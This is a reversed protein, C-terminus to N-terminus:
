APVGTTVDAGRRPLSFHFTAGQDVAGEAWVRGGHKDVIRKVIALGIGTGAFADADHLRQFVGFLKHSYAPDFGAGNDRITYTISDDSAAGSVEIVAQERKSTFKIANSLLNVLVQRLMAKDANAPPLGAVRVDIKREGAAPILEALVDQVLTTMDISALVIDKRGARSFALIDDILRGMKDTNRRVTQLLRQGEADLKDKYDELLMNSFSDIARLPARLDHSVSYSFGELDKNASELQATRESVRQELSANLDLIVQESKKLESIDRAAAFVGVVAGTEDRFVSANYLVPTIRGDNARIQLPYDRVEGDRFVRQYGERAKGPDTFYNSFDSGIMQARGIGAVKATAENVDTIKGDASITVLPDVSAELLSRAYRSARLLALQSQEREKRARLVSLGFGLDATMEELLGVEAENFADSERAYATLAGIVHDDVKLPLAISSAFGQKIAAERWPATAPNTLFDRNIQTTGTRIATGTPGRGYADNAWTIKLHEVYGDGFQAVPRVTKGANDEAMGIWVTRYGGIEGAIQCVRALLQEESEARIMSANSAGLVRLVRNTRTLADQAHRADTIDVVSTLYYQPKGQADRRLATSIEAWVISGNKHLYRKTFRVSPAGAALSDLARQNPEIDDPHTIDQWRQHVFEERSYGLMRCFADNVQLTGDTRTISKGIVSHEFVYRFQDESAALAHEASLRERHANNAAVATWWVVGSLLLMLLVASLASGFASDYHGAAQVKLQLWAIAAPAVLAFPMMHRMMAGGALGSSLPRTLGHDPTCFFLGASLVLFAALTHIAVGSYTGLMYLSSVNLMFGACGMYTDVFVLLALCQAATRRGAGEGNVLLLALGALLFNVATIPAMRGPHSTLVLGHVDQFLLQDIGLDYQRLMEIMSAAAIACVLMALIQALRQLLKGRASRIALLSAGSLTFALATNPAMAGWGALIRTLVPFDLAWGALVLLGAAVVAVGAFKAIGLLTAVMQADATADIVPEALAPARMGCGRFISIPGPLATFQAGADTAQIADTIESAASARDLRHL